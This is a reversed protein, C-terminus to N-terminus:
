VLPSHVGAAVIRTAPMEVGPCPHVTFAWKTAYYAITEGIYPRLYEALITALTLSSAHEQQCGCDVRMSSYANRYCANCLTRGDM